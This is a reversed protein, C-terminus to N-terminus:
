NKTSITCYELDIDYETNREVEQSTAESDYNSPGCALSAIAGSFMGDAIVEEDDQLKRRGKGSETIHEDVDEDEELMRRGKGMETVYEIEIDPAGRRMDAEIDADGELKRSPGCDRKEESLSFVFEDGPRVTLCQITRRTPCGGGRSDEVVADEEQARRPGRCFEREFFFCNDAIDVTEGGSPGFKTRTARLLEVDKKEDTFHVSFVGPRAGGPGPGGGGVFIQSLIGTYTVTDCRSGGGNDAVVADLDSDPIIEVPAVETQARRRTGARRADAVGLALVIAASSLKM